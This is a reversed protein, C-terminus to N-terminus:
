YARVKLKAPWDAELIGTLVTGMVLLGGASTCVPTPVGDLNRCSRHEYCATVDRSRTCKIWGQRLWTASTKTVFAGDISLACCSALDVCVDLM